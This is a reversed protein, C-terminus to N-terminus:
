DTLNEAMKQILGVDDKTHETLKRGYDADARYFYSLMTHRVQENKVQMLDNGLDEILDNQQQPTLSRYFIGAQEFNDTKAIIQQQVTGELEPTTKKYAPNDKLAISTTSPQYNVDGSTLTQHGSGDQNYNRVKVKPRNVPISQYNAGLRYMHTDAYSFLRGQLMRDESAEIGPILNSPDFAVQETTEFFNDPVKNLTLTGIKTEPVGLWEKTDDLPNYRFDNLQAPKLTKIYLDWIPYKGGKITNYLDNTLNNFDKAQQMKAQAGSFGAVGQRSKFHFKVYTVEGKSNVFKFAHVGFGDMKRYSSPIGQYSFIRTLMHTSEPQHSFFDYYRNPDQVNSIPSPKLSHIMDPFKMADRIFFVPESLGVLDWNGTSTYFKMAFGHPDRLEEPSGKPHIVTSFRVFVPTTTGASFVKALTLDSIDKEAKFVGYVGTGRAHVVREPIRERDFRQLKQLLHGDQLLTPGTPGATQSNQNDGVPAGNDQTMQTETAALSIQPAMFLLVVSSLVVNNM